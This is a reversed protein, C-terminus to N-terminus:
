LGSSRSKSEDPETYPVTAPDESGKLEIFHPFNRVLKAVILKDLLTEAGHLKSLLLVQIAM